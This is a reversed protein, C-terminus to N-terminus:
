RYGLKDEREKAVQRPLAKKLNIKNLFNIQQLITSKCHQTIEATCCHSM